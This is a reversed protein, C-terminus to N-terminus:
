RGWAGRGVRITAAVLTRESPNPMRNARNVEAKLQRLDPRVTEACVLAPLPSVAGSADPREAPPESAGPFRARRNWPPTNWRWAPVADWAWGRPDAKCARAVPNSSAVLLRSELPRVRLQHSWSTRDNHFPGSEASCPSLHRLVPGHFIRNQIHCCPFGVMIMITPLSNQKLHPSGHIM